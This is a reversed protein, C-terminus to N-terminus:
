FYKVQFEEKRYFFFDLCNRSGLEEQYQSDLTTNFYIFIM